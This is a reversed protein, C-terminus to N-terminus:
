IGFSQGCGCASKAQPNEFVFGSQMLSRRWEVTTGELFPASRADVFVRGGEHEFVEDEPRPREAWDVLYSLGSCGGGQVGLRLGGEPTNREAAMARLRAAASETIHIAASM